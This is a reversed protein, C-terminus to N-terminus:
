VSYCLFNRKEECNKIDWYKNAKNVTGCHLPRAPCQPLQGGSWAQYELPKGNVWFWESGLFVLGTWVDSTQAGMITSQAKIHDSKSLLSVLDTYNDRCYQLGEEWTKMEQVLILMLKSQYCVFPITMQCPVDLWKSDSQAAVCYEQGQLNNPEGSAWNSFGTGDTSNEKGSWMWGTPDDADRYLGIWTFSHAPSQRSDEIKRFFALDTYQTRCYTQADSWTM